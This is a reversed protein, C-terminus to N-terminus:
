VAASFIMDMGGGPHAFFRSVCVSRLSSAWRADLLMWADLLIKLYVQVVGVIFQFV